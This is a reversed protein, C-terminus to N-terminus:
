SGEGVTTVNRALDFGFIQWGGSKKRTLMLRGKVKVRKDPEDGREALYDLHVRATVGAAVKYPALVSLYATQRKPVVSETTPGLDRNTLLDRNRDAQRAAGRSFTAFAGDFDSRPYDGGLFADDFYRTVVKRVNDALVEQDKPRLRGSVRTVRVKAPVPKPKLTPTGGKSAAEQGPGPADGQPESGGTCATATLALLLCLAAAGGRRVPRHRSRGPAAPHADTVATKGEIDSGTHGGRRAGSMGEAWAAIGAAGPQGSPSAQYGDVV